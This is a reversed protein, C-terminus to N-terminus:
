AGTAFEFTLWNEYKRYGLTLNVNLMHENGHNNFTHVWRARPHEELMWLTAAAKIRLGLGHGRHAEIVATDWIDIAEPVDPTTAFINFGAVKGEADVAALVHRRIGFRASHEERGRLRALDTNPHEFKLDEIPADQMADAATCYSEAFEDPCHDGWRVLRYGANKPSGAAWAEYQRRDIGTLDLTSRTGTFVHKGGAATFFPVPDSNSAADIVVRPRGEAAALRLAERVLFEGVGSDRRAATLVFFVNVLDPNGDDDMELLLLAIPAGGPEDAYVGYTRCRGHYGDSAWFRTETEGPTPFGPRVEAFFERGVRMAAALDAPDDVPNLSEIRM